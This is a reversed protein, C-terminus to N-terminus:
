IRMREHLGWATPMSQHLYAQWAGRCLTARGFGFRHVSLGNTDGPLAIFVLKFKLLLADLDAPDLPSLSRHTPAKQWERIGAQQFSPERESVRMWKRPM